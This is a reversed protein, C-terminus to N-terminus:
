ALDAELAELARKLEGRRKWGAIRDALPLPIGLAVASRLSVRSGENEATVTVWTEMHDFPGAEGIQTYHYGDERAEFALQIRIGPGSAVVVTDEEAQEVHDVSFTGEYEVVREPSLHREIEMPTARVFRSVEVERM